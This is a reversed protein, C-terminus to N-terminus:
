LHAAILIPRLALGETVKADPMTRSRSGAEAAAKAFEERQAKRQEEDAACAALLFLAAAVKAGKWM